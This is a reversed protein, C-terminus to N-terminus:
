SRIYKTYAVVQEALERLSSELMSIRESDRHMKEENAELKKKLKSNMEMLFQKENTKIFVWCEETDNINSIKLSQGCSLCECLHTNTEGCCSCEWLHKNGLETFHLFASMYKENSENDMFDVSSVIGLGYSHILHKVSAETHHRFM